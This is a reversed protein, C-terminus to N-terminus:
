LRAWTRVSKWRSSPHIRRRIHDCRNLRHRLLPQFCSGSASSYSSYPSTLKTPSIGEKADWFHHMRAIAACPFDTRATQTASPPWCSPSRTRRRRGPLSSPPTVDEWPVPYTKGAGTAGTRPLPARSRPPKVALAITPCLASSIDHSPQFSVM